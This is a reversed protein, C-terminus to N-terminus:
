TEDAGGAANQLRSLESEARALARVSTIALGAMLLAAAGYSPWVYAAYGGMDFFLQMHEM